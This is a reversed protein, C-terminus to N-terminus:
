LELSAQPDSAIRVAAELRHSQPGSELLENIKRTNRNPTGVKRGGTKQRLTMRSMEVKSSESLAAWRQEWRKGTVAKIAQLILARWRRHSISM